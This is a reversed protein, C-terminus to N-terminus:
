IPGGEEPEVLFYPGGERRIKESLIVLGLLVADPAPPCGPVYVDVPVVQDVGGMVAYGGKFPGGGVACSGVAMAWRPESMRDLLRPLELRLARNLPGDVLLV